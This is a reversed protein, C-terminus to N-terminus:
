KKKVKYFKLKMQTVIYSQLKQVLSTITNSIPAVILVRWSICHRRIASNKQFTKKKTPWDGQPRQIHVKYTPLKIVQYSPINTVQYSILNTVQYSPHKTDIIDAILVRHSIIHRGYAPNKAKLNFKEMKEEKKHDFLCVIMRRCNWDWVVLSLQM